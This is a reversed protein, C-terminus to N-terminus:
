KLIDLVEMKPYDKMIKECNLNWCIFAANKKDEIEDICNVLSYEIKNEEFFSIVLESIENNKDIHCIKKGRKNIDNVIRRLKFKVNQVARYSNKIYDLSRKSLERMGKPTLIYRLNKSNIKEIKVLGKKTFKKILYNVMGLSINVENSIERQTLNNNKNLIHLLDVENQM